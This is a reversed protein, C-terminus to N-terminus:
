SKSGKKVAAGKEGSIESTKEKESAKKKDTAAKSVKTAALSLKSLKSKLREKDRTQELNEAGVADIAGEASQTDLDNM